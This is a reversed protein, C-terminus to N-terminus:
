KPVFQKTENEDKGRNERKKTSGWCNIKGTAKRKVIEQESNTQRKEELEKSKKVNKNTIDAPQIRDNKTAKTTTTTRLTAMTLKRVDSKGSM